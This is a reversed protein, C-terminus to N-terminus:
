QSPLSGRPRPWVHGSQSGAGLKQTGALGGLLLALPGLTAVLLARRGPGARLRATLARTSGRDDFTAAVFAAVAPGVSGVMHWGQGFPIRVGRAVLVLPLWGIWSLALALAAFRLAERRPQNSTRLM